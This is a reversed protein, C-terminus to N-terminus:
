FILGVIVNILSIIANSCFALVPTLIGSILLVLLILYGYQDLIWFFNINKHLFLSRVVKYGDLPPVPILNFVILNINVLITYSFLLYVTNNQIHFVVVLLNYVFMLFLAIFFNMAIGALSVLIEGRKRNKYYVPNIVVPKGYGFRFLILMVLGWPDIHALPSITLRGQNRPTPDGLRNSMWAHAFEHFSIGIVIGPLAYLM